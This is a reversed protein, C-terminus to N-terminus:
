VKIDEYEGLTKEARNFFETNLWNLFMTVYTSCLKPDDSPVRLILQTESVPVSVVNKGFLEIEKANLGTEKAVRGVAVTKLSNEFDLTYETYNHYPAASVSVTGLNQLKVVVTGTGKSLALTREDLRIMTENITKIPETNTEIKDLKRAVWLISGILAIGLAIAIGVVSLLTDSSINLSVM